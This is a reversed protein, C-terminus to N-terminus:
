ARMHTNQTFVSPMAYRILRFVHFDFDAQVGERLRKKREILRTKREILRKKRDVTANRKEKNQIM